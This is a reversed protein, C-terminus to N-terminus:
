RSRHPKKHQRPQQSREGFGAQALEQAARRFDGGHKLVAYAGFRSYARSNEFPTSSSFVFLRDGEGYATTASVGWTKGPRRWYTTKGRQGVPTWGEPVLIDHWTTSQEFDEGPLLGDGGAHHHQPRVPQPIPAEVTRVRQDFSAVVELLRAREEVSFEPCSAPGGATREWAEGSNHCHGPTPAIISYGGEGRTEALVAGAGDVALRKNGEHDRPYRYYFHVGGSPSKEAWGSNLQSWVDGLGAERMAHELRPLLHAARGEFELMEVGGSAKGCVVGLGWTPNKTFWEEVEGASVVRERLKGWAIAPAKSGDDRVPVPTMGARLLARAELLVPSPKPGRAGETRWMQKSLDKLKAPQFGAWRDTGTDVVPLSRFGWDKLREVLSPDSEVNVMRFAVGSRQLQRKTADCQVCGPRTYVTVESM